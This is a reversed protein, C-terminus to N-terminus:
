GPYKQVSAFSVEVQLVSTLSGCPRSLPHPEQSPPLGGRWVMWLGPSASYAEVGPDPASGRGGFPKWTNYTNLTAVRHLKTNNITGQLHLIVKHEDNKSNVPIIKVWAVKAMAVAM